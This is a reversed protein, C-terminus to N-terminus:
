QGSLRSLVALAESAIRRTVDGGPAEVGLRAAQGSWLPSFDGSGTSEAKSRLPALAGSALPFAPAIPSIPGTERMFRNVIGRAPRGSFVNTLATSADNAERLAARHAQSITSEPCFLYATGIQVASAGLAFAAAVGRGDAIAGSAIVPARVADAIQPTLAFVGAQTAIDTSQFMGRHGGAEVGQAIIADCGREDLWRAEQVSTASSIIKAGTARVRELLPPAPLGFHFSVVEPAFEEVIACMTEDFPARTPAPAAADMDIGLEAYYGALRQRWAAERAPEPAPATHCFFNLNIPASTHARITEIESRMQAPSLMACPLSGLGGARAVAIALASGSAGAMPAQLIPLEIGFLDQIRSSPWM